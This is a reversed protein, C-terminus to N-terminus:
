PQGGNTRPKCIGCKCTLAHTRAPRFTAAPATDASPKRARKPPPSVSGTRGNGTTIGECRERERELAREVIATMTVDGGEREAQRKLWALLGEPLRFATQPKSHVGRPM